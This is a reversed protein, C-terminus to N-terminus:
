KNSLDSTRFGTVTSFSLQKGIEATVPQSHRKVALLVPSEIEVPKKQWNYM